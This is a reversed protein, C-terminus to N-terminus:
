SPCGLLSRRSVLRRGAFALAQASAQDLWQADDVLCVQPREDAADSLLGLVAVGVMFRDPAEGGRLGFAVELAERQPAPLLELGGMLGGCLQHLGAYALEMESEVGATRVVRCDGAVDALYDLLATKGIGAEGRVVLVGSRGERVGIALQDLVACDDARGILRVASLAEMTGPHM